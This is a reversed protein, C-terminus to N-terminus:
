RVVEQEKLKSKFWRYQMHGKAVLVLKENPRQEVTSLQDVLRAKHTKETSWMLLCLRSAVM